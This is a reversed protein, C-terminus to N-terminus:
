GEYQINITGADFTNTGALLVKLQTLTSALTASGAGFGCINSSDGFTTQLVWTNGTINTLTAVISITAAATLGEAIVYASSYSVASPSTNFGNSAGVYGSTLFGSSTGIQLWCNDTGSTSVGSLMVTIRKAWSPIGTFDISTGSTSAVATGQTITGTVTTTTLTPITVGSANVTLRTTGNNQLVLEGSTDASQVLGSSTSANIISAM